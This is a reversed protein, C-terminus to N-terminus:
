ENPQEDFFKKDFNILYVKETARTLSTYLWRLYARDIMNDKLYGQEIFVAKWQGGQSKHCTLAWAFKVQLANFYKSERVKQMRSRKSPVDQYDEMISDYLKRSETNTLAPAESQITDLLLLADFSDEDPYDKLRVSTEAFRFDYMEKINKLRQVELMEGNAIFGAKSEDSLWFYNNKVAMLLDGGTIESERGIIRSRIQGNYLNARKNSRCVVITEDTRYTGYAENLADELDDGRVKVIDTFGDMKFKPFVNQKQSAIIKRIATANFLIGSDMEQRVVETLEFSRIKIGFTSQLFKLDLAPSIDMGVPPLQATDGIIILRCNSGNYVYEMLDDLLARGGFLSGEQGISTNAIMSAEDVIFLTNKHINQTLKLHFLGDSGTHLKYIKKHITFAKRGSYNSLVKASRGTPALLVIGHKYEDMVDAIAKVITTKGTGAYGKLVFLNREERDLLFEAIMGLLSSQGATLEYPFHESIKKKLQEATM